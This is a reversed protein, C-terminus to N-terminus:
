VDEDHKGEIVPIPFKVIDAREASNQDVQEGEKLGKSQHRFLLVIIPSWFLYLLGYAIPIMLVYGMTDEDSKFSLQIVAITLSFNQVGTELSITRRHKCSMGLLKSVFYGFACGLPQLIICMIWVKYGTDSLDKGYAVFSLIVAAIMFAVGLVSAAIEIWKWIFKNGIKRETNYKRVALGLCTPIIILLLSIFLNVWVVEAGSGLAEKVLVWIWFPMLAFAAVTSMFSMTISLAVDGKSWYTFLNSTTGGPSCGILVAGVAIEKRVQFALALLFSAIPMFLYQSLFGIAVAKPTQFAKKFDDLTTSAGLGLGVVFLFSLSIAQLLDAAKENMNVLQIQEM